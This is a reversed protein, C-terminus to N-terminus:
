LYKLYLPPSDAKDVHPLVNRLYIWLDVLKDFGVFMEIIRYIDIDSKYKMAVASILEAGSEPWDVLFHALSDYLEDSEMRGCVEIM